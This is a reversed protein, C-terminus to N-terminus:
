KKDYEDLIKLKKKVLVLEKLLRIKDRKLERRLFARKIKSIM